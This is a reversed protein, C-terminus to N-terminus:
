EEISGDEPPIKWHWVSKLIRPVIVTRTRIVGPIRALKREVFNQLEQNSRAYAQVSIDQDGLSCAVYGVEPLTAIQEAIESVHSSEVECFIDATVTYGLALKNINASVSIIGDELLRTLRNRVTRESLNFRGAIAKASMRGDEVLCNIITYDLNDVSHTM